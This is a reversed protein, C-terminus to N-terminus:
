AMVAGFIDTLVNKRYDFIDEIKKKVVLTHILSGLSSFPLAYRVRDKVLIGDGHPVFQHHHEWLAYPGKLQKDTFSYPKDVDTIITKWKVPIGYLPRVTYQIIM